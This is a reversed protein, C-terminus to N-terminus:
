NKYQSSDDEEEEEEEVGTVQSSSTSPPPCVPATQDAVSVLLIFSSSYLHMPALLLLHPEAISIGPLLWSSAATTHTSQSTSSRREQM